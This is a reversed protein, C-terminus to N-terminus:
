VNPKHEDNDIVEYWEDKDIEKINQKIFYRTGMITTFMQRRGDKYSKIVIPPSEIIWFPNNEYINSVESKTLQKGIHQYLTSKM